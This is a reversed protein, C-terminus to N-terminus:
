FKVRSGLSGSFVTISYPKKKQNNKVGRAKPETWTHAYVVTSTTTRRREQDPKKGGEGGGLM